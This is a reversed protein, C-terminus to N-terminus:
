FVSCSSAVLSIVLVQLLISIGQCPNFIMVFVLVLAFVPIVVLFPVSVSCFNTLSLKHYSFTSAILCHSSSFRSILKTVLALTEALFLFLPLSNHCSCFSCCGVAFNSELGKDSCLEVPQYIYIGYSVSLSVKLSIKCIFPLGLSCQWSRLIIKIM